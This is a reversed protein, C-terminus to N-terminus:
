VRSKKLNKLEKKLVKEKCELCIGHSPNKNNGEKIIKNCWACITKM